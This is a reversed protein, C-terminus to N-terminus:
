AAHHQRLQQRAQQREAPTLVGDHNLDVRDFNQLALTQAETLSVRGDHNADAKEFMKGAFGGRMGAQEMRGKLVSGMAQFEARTVVGDKNVDARAFMGPLATAHAVAPHGGSTQAHQHRGAEAEAATIQGDRNADIRDFLKNPDFRAARQEAKAERQASAAAVEDKTLFGDHNPDLRNFMAQVRAQVDARTENKAVRQTRAAAPAPAPANAYAVGGSVFMATAIGGILFKKM